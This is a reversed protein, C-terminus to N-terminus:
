FIHSISLTGKGRSDWEPVNWGDQKIIKKRKKKHWKAATRTRINLSYKLSFRREPYWHVFILGDIKIM